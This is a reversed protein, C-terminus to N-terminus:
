AALSRTARESLVRELDEVVQGLHARDDLLLGLKRDEVSSLADKNALVSIDDVVGDLARSLKRVTAELEETKRSRMWARTLINALKM